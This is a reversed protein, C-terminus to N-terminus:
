YIGFVGDKGDTYDMEDKIRSEWETEYLKGIENMILLSKERISPMEDGVGALLLPLIKYGISYRDPLELLWEGVITFLKLRVNGTNDFILNWLPSISSDLGDLNVIM